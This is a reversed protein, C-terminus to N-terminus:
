QWRWVVCTTASGSCLERGKDGHLDGGGDADWRGLWFERLRGAFAVARWVVRPRRLAGAPRVMVVVDFVLWVVRLFACAISVVVSPWSLIPTSAVVFTPIPVAAAVTSGSGVIVTQLEELTGETGGPLEGDIIGLGSSTARIDRRSPQPRHL